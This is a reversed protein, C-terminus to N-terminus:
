VMNRPDALYGGFEIDPQLRVPLEALKADRVYSAGPGYDGRVFTLYHDLDINAAKLREADPLPDAARLSRIKQYSLTSLFLAYREAMAHSALKHRVFLWAVLLMVAVVICSLIMWFVRADGTSTATKDAKVQTDGKVATDPTAGTKNKGADGGISSGQEGKAKIEATRREQEAARKLSEAAADKAAKIASKLEALSLAPQSEFEWSTGVNAFALTAAGLSPQRMMALATERASQHLRYYWRRMIRPVSDGSAEFRVTKLDLGAKAYASKFADNGAPPAGFTVVAAIDYGREALDAAALKAVAGGQSHGTLVIPLTKPLTALYRLVKDEIVAWAIAFGLHRGPRRVVADLVRSVGPGHRSKLHSQLKKDPAQLTDTLGDELNIRWDVNNRESGRIAVFVLGDDVCAFAQTDGAQDPASDFYEAHTADGLNRKIVSESEYALAAKYAAFECLPVPIRRRGSADTWQFDAPLLWRPGLDAPQAGTGNLAALFPRSIIGFDLVHASSSPEVFLNAKPQADAVPQDRTSISVM